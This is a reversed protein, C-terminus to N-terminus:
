KATITVSAAPVRYLVDDNRALAVLITHKGKGGLMAPILKLTFDPAALAALWHRKLDKRVYADSPIADVYIQFHGHGAVNRRGMERADLTIGKARLRFTIAAHRATLTRTSVKVITVSM